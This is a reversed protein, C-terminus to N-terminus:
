WSFYNSYYSYNCGTLTKVSKEQPEKFETWFITQLQKILLCQSKMLSKDKEQLANIKEPHYLFNEM